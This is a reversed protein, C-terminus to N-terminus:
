KKKKKIIFFGLYAIFVVVHIFFNFYIFLLDLKCFLALVSSEDNLWGLTM